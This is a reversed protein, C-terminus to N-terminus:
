DEFPYVLGWHKRMETAIQMVDYTHNQLMDCNNEFNEIEYLLADKTNGIQFIEKEKNLYVIEAKDCRPYDYIEIYADACSIVARKPLKSNLSVTLTSIQGNKRNIVAGFGEDVGSETFVASSSVSEVRCSSYMRELALAYVGIDLMAGGACSKSYFRNNPDYKKTSGFNVQILNVKGFEGSLVRKSLARHLPMNYVTMGEAVTVGKESALRNIRSLQTHNVTIAKECLVNKGSNVCKEIFEAHNSHPTAIYVCNIDNDSYLEEATKYVKEINYKKAFDCAKEYTRSYVAFIKRNSRAFIEAMDGGAWGCGIFAWKAQKIM